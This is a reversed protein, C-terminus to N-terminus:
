DSNASTVGFQMKNVQPRGQWSWVSEAEVSALVFSTVTKRRAEVRVYGVFRATIRRDTEKGEKPHILAVWGDLRIRIENTSARALSATLRSKLVKSDSVKWYPGPPYCRAFLKDAVARPVEWEAGPASAETPPLLTKWEEATWLVWDQSTGRNPDMAEYRAWTHLLLDGKGARPRVARSAARTAQVVAPDRPLVTERGIFQELFSVLKDPQCAQQVPLSTAVEGRANLLFVCVTGGPLGRRDRDRDIRHLEAQEERSSEGLQYADRSHWVPVFYRAILEQVRPNSLSSVRM